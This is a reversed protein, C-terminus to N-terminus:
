FIPTSVMIITIQSISRAIILYVNKLLLPVFKSLFSVHSRNGAQLQNVYSVMEVPKKCARYVFYFYIRPHM